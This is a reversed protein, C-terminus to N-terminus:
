RLERVFDGLDSWLLQELYNERTLSHVTGPSAFIETKGM